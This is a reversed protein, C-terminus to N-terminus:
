EENRPKKIYDKLRKEFPHMWVNNKEKTNIYNLFYDDFQNKNKEDINEIMRNINDDSFESIVYTTIESRLCNHISNYIDIIEPDCPYKQFLKNGVENILINFNIDIGMNFSYQYKKAIEVFTEKVFEKKEM